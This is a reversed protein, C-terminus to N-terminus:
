NLSEPCTSSLLMALEAVTNVGMKSFIAQRRRDVTRMGLDMSSAISKNPAGSLMLKMVAREDDTLTILKAQVERELQWTHWRKKSADLGQQVSILLDRSVYPKELLTAAGNRMVKVATPVDAVGTLVVISLLSHMAALREQLQFGDIGPMQLDTVVCGPADLPAQKLFDDASHFCQPDYGFQSLVAKVSALIAEDDDVIFVNGVNLM